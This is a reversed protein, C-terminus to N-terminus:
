NQIIFSNKMQVSTPSELKMVKKEEKTEVVAITPELCEFKAKRRRGKIPSAGGTRTTMEKIEGTKKTSM